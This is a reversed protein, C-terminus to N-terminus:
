RIVEKPVIRRWVYLLTIYIFEFSLILRVLDIIGYGMFEYENMKQFDVLIYDDRFSSGDFGFRKGVANLMSRLPIKIVPPDRRETDFDHLKEMTEQLAGFDFTGDLENQIEKVIESDLDPEPNPNPDPNPNPNPDPDPIIEPNPKEPMIIESPYIVEEKKNDYKTDIWINPQKIIQQTDQIYKELNITGDEKIEPTPLTKPIFLKPEGKTYTGPETGKSWDTIRYNRDPFTYSWKGDPSVYTLTEPFYPKIGYKLNMTNAVVDPDVMNINWEEIKSNGEWMQVTIDRIVSDRIQQSTLSKHGIFHIEYPLGSLQYKFVIRMVDHGYNYKGQTNEITLNYDYDQFPDHFSAKAYWIGLGCEGHRRYATPNWSPKFSSSTIPVGSGDLIPSFQKNLTDMLSYKGFGNITTNTYGVVEPMYFFKDLDYKYYDQITLGDEIDNKMEQALDPYKILGEVPADKNLILHLFQKGMDSVNNIIKKAFAESKADIAEMEAKITSDDSLNLLAITGLSIVSKALFAVAAVTAVTVTVPEAKTTQTKPTIVFMIATILAIFRIKQKQNYVKNM